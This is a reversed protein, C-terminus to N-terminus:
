GSLLSSRARAVEPKRLLVQSSISFNRSLNKKSPHLLKEFTNECIENLYDLIGRLKETLGQFLENFAKSLKKLQEIQEGIM